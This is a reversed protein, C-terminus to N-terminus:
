LTLRGSFRIKAMAGFPQICYIAPMSEVNKMFPNIKPKEMAMGIPGMPM